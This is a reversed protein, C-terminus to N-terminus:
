FNSHTYIISLGLVNASARPLGSQQLQTYQYSLRASWLSSLEQNAWANLQNMSTPLIAKTDRRSAELGVRALEAISYSWNGKIQDSEIYGGTGSASTSRGVEIAAIYSRGVYRLVFSGEWNSPSAMVIPNTTGTIRNRGIQATWELNETAKAQVGGTLSTNDSPLGTPGDPVYHSRALRLFPEIRESLSYNYSLSLSTNGYGTLTGVGYAVKTIDANAALSSRDGLTSRWNGALSQTKRTGDRVVLGSENLESVRTSAEQLKSAIGFEGTESVRRWNLFITPDQRPQSINRDSSREVQLALGAGVEDVGFAGTLKFDPTIRTRRLDASSNPALTPNSDSEISVPLSFSHSWDAAIAVSSVSLCGTALLAVRICHRIHLRLAVTM